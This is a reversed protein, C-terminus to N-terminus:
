EVARLRRRPPGTVARDPASAAGPPRGAVLHRALRMRGVPDLGLASALTAAERRAATLQAILPHPVPATGTAGGPATGPRGAHEWQAKLVAWVGVSEAYRDIAGANMELSEGCSSLTAEAEVRAGAQAAEFVPSVDIPEGHEERFKRELLWAGARWDEKAATAIRAVQKVEGEARARELRESLEKYAPDGQRGKLIWTRMTRDSMGAARAAVTQSTGARLMLVLQDIRSQTLAQKQGRLHTTCMTEGPAPRKRCPKGLLTTAGCTVWDM